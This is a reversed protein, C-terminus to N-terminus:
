HEGRGPRLRPRAAAQHVRACAPGPCWQHTDHLRDRLADPPGPIAPTAVARDVGRVLAGAPKWVRRPKESAAVGVNSMDCYTSATAHHSIGPIERLQLLAPRGVPRRSGPTRLPTRPPMTAGANM